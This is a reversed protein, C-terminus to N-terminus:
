KILAAIEEFIAKQGDKDDANSNALEVYKVTAKRYRDERDSLEGKATLYEMVKRSRTRVRSGYDKWKEESIAGKSLSLYEFNLPTFEAAVDMSAGPLSIVGTFVGALLLCVVAVGGFISLVKPEPMRFGGGSKKPPISPRVPPPTVPLPPKQTASPMGGSTSSVAAAPMSAAGAVPTAVSSENVPVQPASPTADRTTQPTAASSQKPRDAVDRVKGDATFLKSFIEQLFEDQKPKRRKKKRTPRTERQSRGTTAADASQAASSSATTSTEASGAATKRQPPASDQRGEKTALTNEQSRSAATGIAVAIDPIVEPFSWEGDEGCRIKEDSDLAGSEAMKVLYSIPMPGFVQGLTEVYYVAEEDDSERAASKPQRLPASKSDSQLNISDIDPVDSDATPKNEEFVFNLESLDTLESSADDTASQPVQAVSGWEDAGDARVSDDPSLTGDTLLKAIETATVPGFEESFLKYYWATENM